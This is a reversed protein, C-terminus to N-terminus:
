ARSVTRFAEKYNDGTDTNTSNLIGMVNDKTQWAPAPKKLRYHFAAENRPSPLPPRVNEQDLKVERNVQSRNKERRKSKQSNTPLPPPPARDVNDNGQLPSYRPVRTRRVAHKTSLSPRKSTDMITTM